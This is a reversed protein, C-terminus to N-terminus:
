MIRADADKRRQVFRMVELIESREEVRVQRDGSYGHDEAVLQNKMGQM